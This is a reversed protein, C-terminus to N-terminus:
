LRKLMDKWFLRWREVAEGNALKEHTVTLATKGPAKEGASVILRGGDVLAVRWHRWKDTASARPKSAIDVGDFSHFDRVLETWAAIAQNMSGFVTRTVSVQFSGEHDQGPVRRGIHQEYAVTVYQAWWGTTGGESKVRQALDKHPLDRAGIGDLWVLWDEWSRGTGEAITETSMARSAM